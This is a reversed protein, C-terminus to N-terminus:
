VDADTIGTAVTQSTGHCLSTSKLRQAGAWPDKTRAM